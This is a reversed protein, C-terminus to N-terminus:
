RNVWDIPRLHAVLEAEPTNPAPHHDYEWRVVPPLSMLISETRGNTRIGFTTGKDFLLNFEVYRGRRIEQWERERDGYPTDRRREVIPVYAPLFSDAAARTFRHWFELPRTPTHRLYDFFTGGIGRTEGRHSNVFYEDCKQKHDPYLDPGFTEAADRLTTHFHKADEAFLYYPTLDAGGAFWADTPPGGPEAYCEFYRFNCHTTPVFPNSPHLVLSLGNAWFYKHSVGLQRQAAEPLEGYVESVNVGGKEFVGPGAIVRTRGGGGGPREWKDERFKSVQDAAELGACIRDQLGRIFESFPERFSTLPQAPNVTSFRPETM